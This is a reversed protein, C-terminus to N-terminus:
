TFGLWNTAYEGKVIFTENPALNKAEKVLPGYSGIKGVVRDLDRSSLAQPAAAKESVFHTGYDVQARKGKLLLDTDM